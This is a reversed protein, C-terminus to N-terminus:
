KILTDGLAYENCTFFVYDKLQEGNEIITVTIEQCHKHKSSKSINTIIMKGNSVYESQQCGTVAMVALLLLLTLIKM